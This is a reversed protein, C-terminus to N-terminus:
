KPSASGAAKPSGAAAACQGCVLRPLEHPCTKYKKKLEPHCATCIEEPINEHEKCLLVNPDKRIEPHCVPCFRDAVEHKCLAEHGAATAAAVPTKGPDAGQPSCGAIAIGIALVVYPRAVNHFRLM